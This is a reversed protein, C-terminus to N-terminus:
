IQLCLFTASRSAALVGLARQLGQAQRCRCGISGTRVAPDLVTSGSPLTLWVDPDVWCVKGQPVTRVAATGQLRVSLRVRSVAASRIVTQRRLIVPWAVQGFLNM